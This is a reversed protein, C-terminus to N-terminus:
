LYSRVDEETDIDINGLKFNIYTRSKANEVISKAGEQDGINMLENFYSSPFLVPVGYTQDDYKSTIINNNGTEKILDNFVVTNMYPQDCVSIVISETQPHNDLIFQVGKKISSGMGKQWDTNHVVDVTTDQIIKSFFNYASGLVICVHQSNSEMAAEITNELLSNGSKLRLLQKPRGLRSSNGAALLLIATQM